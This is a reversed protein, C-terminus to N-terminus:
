GPKNGENKKKQALEADIKAIRDRNDAITIRAQQKQVKLRLIEREHALRIRNRAM